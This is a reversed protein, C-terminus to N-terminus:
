GNRSLLLPQRTDPSTTKKAVPQGLQIRTLVYLHPMAVISHVADQHDSMDSDVPILKGLNQPLVLEARGVLGM